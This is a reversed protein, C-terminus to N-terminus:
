RASTAHSKADIPKMQRELTEDAVKLFRHAKRTEDAVTFFRHSLYWIFHM